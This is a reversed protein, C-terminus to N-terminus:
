FFFKTMLQIYSFNDKGIKSHESTQVMTYNLQWVINPNPYWNLGLTFNAGVGGFINANEDSLSLYSYRAGLEWAGLKDDAKPILQGFEGQSKDWSRHEGTIDWLLYVYGSNFSVTSLDNNRYVNVLQYEGQLHFNRYVLASEVGFRYTHNTNKIKPTKLIEYDGIKTEPEADFDVMWTEDDPREWVASGGFHLIMNDNNIPAAAVRAAFGGGTENKTKNKNADLNQGFITARVNWNNGWHGHEIGIRRHMKFALAGYYREPFPIYRSSTLIELGYPVKFHGFKIYSNKFGSFSVYMDKVETAGDAFDFDWETYWNKWLLMKIALRGKRLHFGNSFVKSNNEFFYAGNLFGRGDFRGKFDGNESKWFYIGHKWESVGPVTDSNGNSSQASVSFALIMSFLLSAIISKKM